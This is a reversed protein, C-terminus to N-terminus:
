GFAVRTGEDDVTLPFHHAQKMRAPWLSTHCGGVDGIHGRGPMEEFPDLRDIQVSVEGTLDPLPSTSILQLDVFPILNQLVKM